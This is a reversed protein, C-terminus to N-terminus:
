RRTPRLEHAGAQREPVLVLRTTWLGSEATKAEASLPAVFVLTAALGFGRVLWGLDYLYGGLARKM